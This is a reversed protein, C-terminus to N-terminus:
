RCPPGPQQKASGRKSKLECGRRRMRPHIVLLLSGQGDCDRANNGKGVVLMMVPVTVYRLFAFVDGMKFPAEPVAHM